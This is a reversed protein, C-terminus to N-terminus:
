MAKELEVQCIPKKAPGAIPPKTRWCLGSASQGAAAATQTSADAYARAISRRMGARSSRVGRTSESAPTGPVMGFM